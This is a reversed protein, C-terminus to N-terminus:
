PREDKSSKQPKSDDPIPLEQVSCDVRKLNNKIYDYYYRSNKSKINNVVMRTCYWRLEGNEYMEQIKEQPKQLLDLYLDQALDQLYPDSLTGSDRDLPSKAVNEIITEIVREKAIREIICMSRLLYQM